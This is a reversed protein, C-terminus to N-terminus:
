WEVYVKASGTWGRMCALSTGNSGAKTCKKTKKDM